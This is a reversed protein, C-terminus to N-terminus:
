LRIETEVVILIVGLAARRVAFPDKSGTPKEGIGWFCVLTDIKDALGGALAVPDVPVLDDPGKPKYHVEAAHAVEAAQNQADAYCRRMLGQLVPFQGVAETLLHAKCLRAAREADALKAGVIPAVEAALDVIRANRESQSGLKEHFAIQDFKPLRDELR